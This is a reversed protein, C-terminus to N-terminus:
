PTKQIPQVVSKSPSNRSPTCGSMPASSNSMSSLVPTPRSVAVPSAFLVLGSSAGAPSASLPPGVRVTARHAAKLGELLRRQHGPERHFQDINSGILRDASFGPLAQRMDAEAGRMMQEMSRNMYLIENSSDAIMVNASASDLANKLRLNVKAAADAKRLAILMSALRPM